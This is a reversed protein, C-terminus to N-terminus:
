YASKTGVLAFATMVIIYIDLSFSWNEIYFLDCEVRRIIKDETDTEGRWGNVQAWGTIGPRIKHRKAYNDVVNQYLKGDAKAHLAHPRPGVISMEGRLVNFLQPLEDLSSRRLFRGIRTVRPDDRTALKDANNDAMHHHMSRFKFVEILNNNFGYRKQRFFVPGPSDLKIALAILLLLPSLLLVAAGAILMDEVGKVVWDGATLPKAMVNLTPMGDLDVMRPNAFSQVMPEPGMHVNAPIEGIQGMIEQVRAEAGWPLAIIVEDVRNQRTFPVLEAITGLVPYGMVRMSTGPRRRDDFVGLIRTWPQRLRELSEILECGRPGGCIIVVTRELWGAQVMREIQRCMVLRAGTALAVYAVLFVLAWELAQWLVETVPLIVLTAIALLIPASKTIIKIHDSRNFVYSTGYLRFYSLTIPVAPLMILLIHLYLSPNNRFGVETIIVKFAIYVSPIITLVDCLVLLAPM